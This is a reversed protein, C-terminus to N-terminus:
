CNSHAHAFGVSTLQIAIKDQIYVYGSCFPMCTVHMRSSTEPVSVHMNAHMNMPAKAMFTEPLICDHMIRSVHMVHCAQIVHCLHKALSKPIKEYMNVHMNCCMCTFQMIKNDVHVQVHM